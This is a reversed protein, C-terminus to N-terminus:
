LFGSQSARIQLVQRRHLKECNILSRTHEASIFSTRDHEESVHSNPIPSPCLSPTRSCWQRQQTSLTHHSSSRLLRPYVYPVPDLPKPKLLVMSYFHYLTTPFHKACAWLVDIENSVTIQLLYHNFFLVPIDLELMFYYM